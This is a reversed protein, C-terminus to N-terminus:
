WDFSVDISVDADRTSSGTPQLTQTNTLQSSGGGSVAALETQNIEKALNYALVREKKIEM